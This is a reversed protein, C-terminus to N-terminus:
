RALACPISGEHGHLEIHWSNPFYNDTVDSSAPKWATLECVLRGALRSRQSLQFVCSLTPGETRALGDDIAAVRRRKRGARRHSCQEVSGVLACIHRLVEQGNSSPLRRLALGRRLWQDFEM